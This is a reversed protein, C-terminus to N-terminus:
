VPAAAGSERRRPRRRSSRGTRTRPSPTRSGAAARALPPRRVSEKRGEAENKTLPMRKDYQQAIEERM